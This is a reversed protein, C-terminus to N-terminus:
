SKDGLFQNLAERMSSIPHIFANSKDPKPGIAGKFGLKKAEAIRKDIASVRRVEGSLGVEGFVVLDEKLSMEKASSAIAMCVALDAAPEAIKMGGVINVYIDFDHLNLKTRQNLVAVLLNLRNIDIGVATRKPYGFNTRSVLAQVEVLLARSGEVTAFVVSGDSTQRESLLAASPNTIPVLGVDIMEFLGVENTSGYRNKIGRLVKFGGYRDGELNLVVDVLHELIKPGAISGEKTVHGVIILATNSSKAAAQLLQACNTIQSVSGAASDLESASITQISDVIVVDYAGTQISGAIDNASNTSVLEMVSSGVNLRNARLKIQAASEEGSAYLVKSNKSIQAALQLLLTSKGIGPEGALLVISAPVLGGGLVEDVPDINTPFRNSDTPLDINKLSQTQLKSGVSAKNTMKQERFVVLTNWQGCSDCKGSWKPFSDGCNNCIYHEKTKAM